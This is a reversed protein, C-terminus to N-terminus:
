RGAAFPDKVGEGDGAKAAPAKAAGAWPDKVEGSTPTPPAAFPDKIEGAAPPAPEGAFPNKLDADAPAAAPPPPAAFPDKLEGAATSGSPPTGAFPDKLEGPAAPTKGADAAPKAEGAFPDKLDNVLSHLGAAAKKSDSAAAEPQGCAIVTVLAALAALGAILGTNVPRPSPSPSM